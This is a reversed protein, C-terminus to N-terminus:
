RPHQHSRMSATSGPKRKLGTRGASCSLHGDRVEVPFHKAMAMKRADRLASVAMGIEVAGRLPSHKRRLQVRIRSLDRETAALLKESGPKKLPSSLIFYHQPSHELAATRTPRM